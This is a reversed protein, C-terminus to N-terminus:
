FRSYTALARAVHDRTPVSWFPNIVTRGPNSEQTGGQYIGSTVHIILRDADSQRYTSDGIDVMIPLQPDAIRIPSLRVYCRRTLLQSRRKLVDFPERNV